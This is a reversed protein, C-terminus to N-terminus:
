KFWELFKSQDISFHNTFHRSLLLSLSTLSAYGMFVFLFLAATMLAGRSAPSLMGLMAFGAVLVIVVVPV